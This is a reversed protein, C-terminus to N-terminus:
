EKVINIKRIEKKNRLILTYIGNYLGTLDIEFYNKSSSIRGTRVLGNSTSLVEYIGNWYTSTPLDIRIKDKTPNPSVAIIYGACATFDFSVAPSQTTGCLGNAEVYFEYSQGCVYPPPMTKFNVTSTGISIGDVFWEYSTASPVSNCGLIVWGSRGNGGNTNGSVKLNTPVPTGIYILQPTVNYVFSCHTVIATLNFQALIANDQIVVSTNTNSGIINAVSNNSLSWVVTAGAPLGSISFTKTAGNCIVFNNPTTINFTPAPRNISIVKPLNTKALSANCSNVARIQVAGGDGNTLDSTITVNNNATIWNGTSPSGNM